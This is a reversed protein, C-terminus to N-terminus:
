AKPLDPKFINVKNKKKNTQRNAKLVNREM